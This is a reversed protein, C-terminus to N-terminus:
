KLIRRTIRERGNNLQLLYIGSPLSAVNITGENIGKPYDIEQEAAVRGNIDILRSTVPGTRGTSFRFVLDSGTTVTSIMELGGNTEASTLVVSIVDTYTFTGDFDTQKLRYYIINYPVADTDEFRYYQEENTTGAGPVEGIAEFHVGDYSREITFFENNFESATVWELLIAGEVPAGTFSLLEIPLFTVLPFTETITACENDDDDTNIVTLRVTFDTDAIGDDTNTLTLNSTTSTPSFSTNEVTWSIVNQNGAVDTVTGSTTAENATITGLITETSGDDISWQIKTNPGIPNEIVRQFFIDGGPLITFNPPNGTNSFVPVPAISLTALSSTVICGDNNVEVSYQSGDTDMTSSGVPNLDLVNSVPGGSPSNTTGNGLDDMGRFWTFEYDTALSAESVEVGLMVASGDCALIDQPQVDIIADMGSFVEINASETGCGNSVEVNYLGIADVMVPATVTNPSFTSGAPGEWVFTTSSALDSENTIDIDLEITSEGPCLVGNNNQLRTTSAQIGSFSPFNDIVLQYEYTESFVMGDEFEGTLTWPGGVAPAADIDISLIVLSNAPVTGM